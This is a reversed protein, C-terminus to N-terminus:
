YCYSRVSSSSSLARNLCDIRSELDSVSRKLDGIDNSAIPVSLGYTAEELHDVDRSLKSLNSTLTVVSQSGDLSAFSKSVRDIEDNLQKSRDDLGKIASSRAVEIQDLQKSQRDALQQTRFALWGCAVAVLLAVVLAGIALDKAKDAKILAAELDDGEEPAEQSEGVETQEAMEDSMLAFYRQRSRAARFLGADRATKSNRVSRAKRGPM